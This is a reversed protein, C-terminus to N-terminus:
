VSLRLKKSRLMKRNAAWNSSPSSPSKPPKFGDFTEASTRAGIARFVPEATVLPRM